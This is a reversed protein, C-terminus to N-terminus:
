TLIVPKGGMITRRNVEEIVKTTIKDGDLYTDGGSRQIADVIASTANTVAQIVVSGLEENSAELTEALGGSGGGTAKQRISYPTIGGDVIAPTAFTVRTAIAELRDMLATFSDTVKDAFATLTDDLGSSEAGLAITGDIDNVEETVRDAMTRVAKVAEPITQEVGVATGKVLMKGVEDRFVKSPSNIGLATEAANLLNWALNSVTTSLWSWGANIGSQIGSCISSGISSWSMNKLSNYATQMNSTLTTKVGSIKSSVASAMTSMKSSVTSSISSFKSSMTSYINGAASTVSSKVSNFKSSVTSQVSSMKSSVASAVSSFKSSVTSHITGSISSVTSKAATFAKNIAAKASETHKATSDAMGSFKEKVTSYISGATDTIISKSDGFRDSIAKKVNGVKDSVTTAVNGFKDKVDKSINSSADSVTKKINGWADSFKKKIGDLKETFFSKINQWASSVGNLLGDILYGGQEVMVTSPSHIGFAEKFGDIFPKFIHDHIWLGIGGLADILGDLLGQISFHGDEYATDHWWDVVDNWADEILGWLFAALGGLVAGLAGFFSEFVGAWDINALLDGINKGLQYWDIETIAVRLFDLAGKLMTSLTQGLTAWDVTNSIGNIGDAFAQGAGVWDFTTVASFLVYLAANFLDGLTKGLNGWDVDSILHNVGSAFKSGIGMWDIGTVVRDVTSVFSNIGIALKQGAMDWDFALIASTIVRLLLTMYLALTEGLMAWDIDRVMATLGEGLSRGLLEWDIGTLLTYAIHILLNIGAAFTSGILDWDIAKVMGNFIECFAKVYPIIVSDAYEIASKIKSFLGNIQEGLLRGIEAFDGNTFLEKLRKAFDAIKSEIPVEEFMDQPTLGTDKTGTNKNKTSSDKDSAKNQSLINLSDFSALQREAKKAEKAANKEADAADDASDATQKLSAAYDQQVAKARTFTKAGTLAAFFMGIRTTAVSLMDILKTIYPAVVNLIPSFATALSNKLRTLASMVSSISANTQSSYQALNQFGEVLGSRLKRVLSLLTQISFAYKLMTKLSSGFGADASKASRGLGTVAKAARLAGSAIAKLGSAVGRGVLKALNVSANRATTGVKKLGSVVATGAVKALGSSTKKSQSDTDKLGDKLGRLLSILAKIREWRGMMPPNQAEEREAAIVEEIGERIGVFMNKTLTGDPMRDEMARIQAVVKELNSKAKTASRATDELGTSPNKIQQGDLEKLQQELEAVTAKLQQVETDSGGAAQAVGSFTTQIVTGLQKIEQTLSRIAALLESSGAEFGKDDIKTDVVISGDVHEAM